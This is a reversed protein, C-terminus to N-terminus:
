EKVELLLARAEQCYPSRCDGADQHQPYENINHCLFYHAQARNGELAKGLRSVLDLLYPIDERANDVFAEEQISGRFATNSIAWNEFGEFDARIESLKPKKTDTM